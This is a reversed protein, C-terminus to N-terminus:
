SSVTRRRALVGLVVGAIGAFLAVISLFLALGAPQNSTDGEDHSHGASATGTATGDSGPSSAAGTLSLLPAPHEPEAQGEVAPDIWASETGDSYTQVV